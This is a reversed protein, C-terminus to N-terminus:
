GVDTVGVTDSVGDLEGEGEQVVNSGLLDAVPVPLLEVESDLAIVGVTECDRFKEVVPENDAAGVRGGVAVLDAFEVVDPVLALVGVIERDKSAESVLEDLAEIVRLVELVPVNVDVWVGVPEREDVFVEV